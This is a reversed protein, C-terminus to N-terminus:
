PIMLGTVEFKKDAEVDWFEDLTQGTTCFIAGLLLRMGKEVQWWSLVCVCVCACVCVRM